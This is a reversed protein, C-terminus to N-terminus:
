FGRKKYVSNDSFFLWEMSLFVLISLASFLVVSIRFSILVSSFTQKCTGKKPMGRLCLGPIFKQGLNTPCYVSDDEAYRAMSAQSTSKNLVCKGSLLLMSCIESYIHNTHSQFQKNNLQSKYLRVHCTKVSYKIYSHCNWVDSHISDREYFLFFCQQNGHRFVHCVTTSGSTHMKKKLQWAAQILKFSDM